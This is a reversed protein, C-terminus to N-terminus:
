EEIEFMSLRLYLSFSHFLRSFDVPVEHTLLLLPVNGPFNYLYYFSNISRVKGLIANYLIQSVSDKIEKDDFLKYIEVDALAVFDGNSYGAVEYAKLGKSLIIEQDRFTLIGRDFNSDNTYSSRFRDEPELVVKSFGISEIDKLNIDPPFSISYGVCNVLEVLNENWVSEIVNSIEEYKIERLYRNEEFVKELAFNFLDEDFANIYEPNLLFWSVRLDEIEFNEILFPIIQYPPFKEIFGILLGRYGKESITQIRDILKISNDLSIYGLEVFTKLAADLNTLSYDKRSHYKTWFLYVSGINIKRNQHLSLRIYNHVKKTMEFSSENKNKLIFDKFDLLLYDNTKHELGLFLLNAKVDNLIWKAYFKRVGMRDLKQELITIAEFDDYRVWKYVCKYLDPFFKRNSKHIFLNELIYVIKNKTEIETTYNLGKEIQEKTLAEEHKQFFMEESEIEYDLDQFFNETSYFDNNTLDYLFAGNGSELYYWMGFLYGSSTIDEATYSNSKLAKVYTYLFDNQTSVHERNILNTILSLEYYHDTEIDDPNIDEILGRLQRYFTRIAEYDVVNEMLEAFFDISAYKRIMSIKQDRSFYFSSIRSLFRKEGGMISSHVVSSVHDLLMSYDKVQKRLFTNFSDHYLSIRNLKVEFLYPHEDIFETVFTRSFDDLFLKLESKMLYSRVCLFVSLAHKGTQNSILQKYYDDVSSLKELVPIEGKIKFHEAVYKVLIPYGETLSFIDDVLGFEKIHFLEDLVQQTQERNWNGLSYKRWKLVKKLPRSLIITKCSNKLKDIFQIYDELEEPNYNEVHDLGDIIVVKQEEGLKNLIIDERRHLLDNFLKKSFDSIFNTYKLRDNYDKDQTSIWFRYVLNNAYSNKLIKVLHSKGVGPKGEIFLLNQIELQKKGVDVTPELLETRFVNISPLDERLITLNRSDLRKSFFRQIIGIRQSSKTYLSTIVDDIESRSLSVLYVGKYHFAPFGLVTANQKLEIKKFFVINTADSIIHKKRNIVIQGEQFDLKDISIEEFDKIQCYYKDKESVLTLDDFDNNVDAEIQLSTIKREVDMKSLLLTTVHHQYSYGIYANRM